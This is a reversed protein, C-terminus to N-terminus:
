KNLLSSDLILGQSTPMMIVKVDDGLTQVLTYRILEESLSKSLEQNAEAQKQAIVLIAQGQGEATKVAQEAEFKSVLVRQEAELAEQTAIQKKEIATKFEQNFDVNDLLLDVVNISYPDLEKRLRETVAHRIDERHPAIDVSNYKVTEDKFNQAVRPAVLIEFWSPGVRRYLDQVAVPSISTNLKAVVFVDQTEKSFSNLKDFVHLQEQISEERVSSWPAIWHPGEEIQGTIKGFTYVVGVHGADIQKYSLIPTLILGVLVAVGLVIGGMAKVDRPGFITTGLGVIAVVALLLYAVFFVM